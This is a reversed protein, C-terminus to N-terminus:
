LYERVGAFTSRHVPCPGVQQIAKRHTPTGYGKHKEFGYAPYKEGLQDLLRDREVKAAISAVAVPAARLDGKVLTMQMLNDALGPIKKNGDVLVSASEVVGLKEVARRMALLSANLINIEAIEEVSAIGIAFRHHAVIDKYLKERRLASLKKSDTFESYDVSENIIAAAAYVPGALCGRGVEDVGIVPQPNLKKWPFPQITDKASAM